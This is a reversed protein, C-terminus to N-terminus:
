GEIKRAEQKSTIATPDKIFAILDASNALVNGKTEKVGM